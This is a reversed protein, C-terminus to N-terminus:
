LFYILFTIGLVGPIGLVAITIVSFLNIPVNYGSYGVALHIIFLLLFAFAFRFWFVSLGELVKGLKIHKGVIYLFLLVVPVSISVIVIWPM